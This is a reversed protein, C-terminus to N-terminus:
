YAKIKKTGGHTFEKSAREMLKWRIKAGCKPVQMQDLSVGVYVGCGVDLVINSLQLFYCVPFVSMRSLM